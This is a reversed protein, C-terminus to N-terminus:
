EHESEKKKKKKVVSKITKKLLHCHTPSGEFFLVWSGGEETFLQSIEELKSDKVNTMGFSLQLIKSIVRYDARSRQRPLM